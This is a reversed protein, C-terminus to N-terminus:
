KAINKVEGFDDIRAVHYLIKILGKKENILCSWLLRENLLDQQIVHLIKDSKDGLLGKENLKYRGVLKVKGTASLGLHVLLYEEVRPSLQVTFTNDVNKEIALNTPVKDVDSHQCSTTVFAISFLLSNLMLKM